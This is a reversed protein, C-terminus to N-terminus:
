SYEAWCEAHVKKGGKISYFRGTFVRGDELIVEMVPAGCQACKTAHDKRFETMCEAHVQGGKALGYQNNGGEITYFQGCFARGEVNIKM